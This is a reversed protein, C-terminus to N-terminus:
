NYCSINKSIHAKPHQTKLAIIQHKSSAAQARTLLWPTLMTPVAPQYPSATVWTWESYPSSDYRPKPQFPGQPDDLELGLFFLREWRWCNLHKGPEEKCKPKSGQEQQWLLDPHNCANRSIFSVTLPFWLATGSTKPRQKFTEITEYNRQMIFHYFLYHHCFPSEALMWWRQVPKRNM